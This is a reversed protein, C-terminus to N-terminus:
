RAGGAHRAPCLECAWDNGDKVFYHRHASEYEAPEPEPENRKVGWFVISLFLTIFMLATAISQVASM